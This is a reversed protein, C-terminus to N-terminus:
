PQHNDRRVEPLSPSSPASAKSPLPTNRRSQRKTAVLVSETEFEEISSAAEDDEEESEKFVPHAYANQLYGKLNLNPERARELTDKMMAEQIPYRVFASEYRGKCYLHFSITIVPLAILFPTSQAAKKTSLLGMLIVQSFILAYIIRGHVDPWFAAASEYEQNYVNIIQHRFVVFGLAFFVIIFPLLLPTVTAYVLGLLFYLQIRPEGTNFGLSGPDMAEERDKETKVLFFNKLHFMILPKLMLIEGAIGAWGDVMIYTIFFTAKMPIAVGITKPIQDASQKIFSGLQEFAAGAIVSGLFVNVFNFIYYRAAARRELSSLSTFGEFKAMIMLITPLFILFIKLVIGPLFGQVFSKVFDREIIPKLFPAIKEIGEISALSQVFSIPIMFFFTLFFFAVGMLLKRVTLSVYPIALNEWYVDRPEPAWETLWITPNRSQQTQACVAAGWRSKFSVFAAPMISKPDNAIRKREAAIETRLKAIEATQFEIADVKEGWLGLFGTKMLPKATSDRTYKLQYFDLWNQAKKKKKVLKSLKNADYVVQHTLYNDPHNVLFFHEVLESVSEDPDPPVNRVLVTFQDPRRKESALFQLRLFAVKAYEKMLVYCTWFTFAYAMVLHSWFRQSRAPINSVSLKDIDSATVNATVQAISVNNDTYNVPVLVAWALFAIPVFIKLGILYIRLYVASDLGAHDILEPEPMRIAEPMWNLFKLYSRFDLNVFRRVFAGAHTPSSRLGKLYWKSFYVRDNFPQLRLVAFVLLFIVASLINIAASVGIDQLTAM